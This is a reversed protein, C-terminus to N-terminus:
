SLSPPARHQFCVALEVQHLSLGEPQILLTSTFAPQPPVIRPAVGTTVPVFELPHHVLEMKAAQSYHHLPNGAPLYRGQKALTSLGAVAFLLLFAVTRVLIGRSGNSRMSSEVGHAAHVQPGGFRAFM